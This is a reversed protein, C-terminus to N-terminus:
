ATRAWMSRTIREASPWSCWWATALCTTIATWIPCHQGIDHGARNLRHVPARLPAHGNGGFDLACHHRHLDRIGPRPKRRLREAPQELGEVGGFGGAGPEAEREAPRDDLRM